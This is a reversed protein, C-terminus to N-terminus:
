RLTSCLHQISFAEHKDFSVEPYRPSPGRLLESDVGKLYKDFFAILYASTIEGGRQPRITGIFGLLRFLLRAPPLLRVPLDSFNFHGAGAVTLYYAANQTGEYMRHM